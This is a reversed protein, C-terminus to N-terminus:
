SGAAQRLAPAALEPFRRAVLLLAKFEHAGGEVAVSVRPRERSTVPSGDASHDWVIRELSRVTAADLASGNTSATGNTRYVLTKQDADLELTARAQGALWLRFLDKVVSEPPAEARAESSRLYSRMLRRLERSAFAARM